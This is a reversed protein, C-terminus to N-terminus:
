RLWEPLRVTAVGDWCRAMSFRGISTPMGVATFGPHGTAPYPGGHVMSPVVAVGTPMKNELLRGCRSRLVTALRDWADDDSDGTYMTITM